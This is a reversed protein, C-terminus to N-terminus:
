VHNIRRGLCHRSSGLAMSQPMTQWFHGPSITSIRIGYGLEVMGEEGRRFRDRIRRRINRASQVSEPATGITTLPLRQKFSVDTEDIPYFVVRRPVAGRGFRADFVFLGSGTVRWRGGTTASTARAAFYLQDEDGAWVTVDENKAM